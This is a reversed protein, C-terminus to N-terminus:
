RRRRKLGLSVPKRKPELVDGSLMAKIVTERDYRHYWGARFHGKVRNRNLAEWRKGVNLLRQLGRPTLTPQDPSDPDASSYLGAPIPWALSPSGLEVPGVAQPHSM